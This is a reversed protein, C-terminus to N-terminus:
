FGAIPIRTPLHVSRARNTAASIKSRRERPAVYGPKVEGSISRVRVVKVAPEGASSAISKERVTRRPESPERALKKMASVPARVSEVVTHAWSPARSPAKSAKSASSAM